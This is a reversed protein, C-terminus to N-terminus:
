CCCWSVPLSTSTFVPLCLSQFALACRECLSIFPLIFYLKLRGKSALFFCFLYCGSFYFVFYYYYRRRFSPSLCPVPSFTGFSHQSTHTYYCHYLPSCYLNFIVLVNDLLLLALFICHDHAIITMIYVSTTFVIIIVIIIVIM